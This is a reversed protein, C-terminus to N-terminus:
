WSIRDSVRSKAGLALQKENPYYIGILYDYKGTGIAKGPADDRLFTKALRVFNDGLQRAYDPDIAYDVILVLNVSSGDQSIAADRVLSYGRITSLIMSEPSASTAATRTTAVPTLRSVDITPVATPKAIGLTELVNWDISSYGQRKHGVAMPDNNGREFVIVIYEWSGAGITSGVGGEVMEKVTRVANDGIHRARERLGKAQILLTIAITDADRYEVETDYIGAGKQVIRTLEAVTPLPPKPTATPRPTSTPGPAPTPGIPTPPAVLTPTPTPSFRARSATDPTPTLTPTPTTSFRAEFVPTPAGRVTEEAKEEEGGSVLAVCGIVGVIGIIFWFVWNESLRKPWQIEPQPM